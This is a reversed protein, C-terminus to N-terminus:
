MSCKFLSHLIIKAPIPEFIVSSNIKLTDCAIFCSVVINDLKSRCLPTDRSDAAWVTFDFMISRFYSKSCNNLMVSTKVIIGRVARMLLEGCLSLSACVDLHVCKTFICVFIVVYCKILVPKRTYGQRLTFTGAFDIGINVFPPAPTTRRSPLLGMQTTLTQGYPRQCNSCSRTIKKLTNHLGPICYTHGLISAFVSIGPHGYTQHLTKLLIITLRSKTSLLILHFPQSEDTRKRVGSTVLLLDEKEPANDM